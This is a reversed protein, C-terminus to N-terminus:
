PSFRHREIFIDAAGTVSIKFRQKGGTPAIGGVREAGFAARCLSGPFDREGRLRDDFSAAVSRLGEVAASRTAAAPPLALYILEGEPMLGDIQPVMRKDKNDCTGNQSLVLCKVDCGWDIVDVADRM